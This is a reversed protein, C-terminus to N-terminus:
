KYSKNLFLLALVGPGAHSGIGAGIMEIIVKKAGLREKCIAAIRKAEKLNDGHCVGIVQNKFNVGREEAIEILRNVVRKSGRKNELLELEGKKMHLIPKIKLFTGLFSATRSLRGSRYAYELNDVTFIHEMHKAHYTGIDIVEKVTAGKQALEAARIIVLGYGLSVCKTDIVYIPANPYIEKVEREMIKASEYTGSLAASLSFYILPQNTKASRTFASKFGQPNAQSTTLEKGARMADYMEKPTITQGDVYDKGDINLHVPVVEVNLKEYRDSSLDSASDSLIQVNM